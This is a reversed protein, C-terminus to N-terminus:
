KKDYKSEINREYEFQSILVGNVDYEIIQGNMLDYEMVGDQYEKKCYPCKPYTFKSESM